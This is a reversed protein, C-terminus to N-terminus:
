IWTRLQLPTSNTLSKHRCQRDWHLSPEEGGIDIDFHCTRCKVTQLVLSAEVLKCLFRESTEPELNNVNLHTRYLQTQHYIMCKM